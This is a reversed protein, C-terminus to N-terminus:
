IMQEIYWQDCLIEGVTIPRLDQDLIPERRNTKTYYKPYGYVKNYINSGIKYELLADQLSLPGLYPEWNLNFLVDLPVPQESYPGACFVITDNNNKRIIQHDSKFRRNKNKQWFAWIDCATM